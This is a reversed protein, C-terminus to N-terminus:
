LCRINPYAATNAILTDFNSGPPEVSIISASPYRNAFYVATYGVYAGLDLIKGPEPMEFGYQRGLFVQQLNWVDSSAGRFLLPTTIEPLVAFFSGLHSRSISNLIEFYQARLTHQNPNGQMEAELRYKATLLEGIM